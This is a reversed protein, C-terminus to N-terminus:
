RRIAGSSRGRATCIKPESGATIASAARMTSSAPASRTSMLKPQGTLFTVFVPAPAVISSSGARAEATTAATAPATETGTVTFIRRPSCFPERAQRSSPGRSTSAPADDRVSCGREARCIYVPSASWESVASITETTSTGTIADPSTVERARAWAMRAVVPAAATITPRAACPFGQASRSITSPDASAGVRSSTTASSTRNM